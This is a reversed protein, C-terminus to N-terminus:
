QSTLSSPEPLESGFVETGDKVKHQSQSSDCRDGANPFESRLQRFIAKIRM